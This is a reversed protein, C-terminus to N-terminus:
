WINKFIDWSQRSQNEVFSYKAEESKTFNTFRTFKLTNTLITILVKIDVPIYAVPFVHVLFLLGIMYFRM